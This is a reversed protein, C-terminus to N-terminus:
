WARRDVIFGIIGVGLPAIVHFSREQTKDSHRANIFACVVSSFNAVHAVRLRSPAAYQHRLRIAARVVPSLHHQHLGFDQDLYPLIPQLLALHGDRDALAGDGLGSCLAHDPSSELRSSCIPGVKYDTIAAILAQVPQLRPTTLVPRRPTQDPTSHAREYHRQGPLFCTLVQMQACFLEFM